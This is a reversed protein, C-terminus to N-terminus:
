EYALKKAISYLVNVMTFRIYARLYKFYDTIGPIRSNMNNTTISRLVAEGENKGLARFSTNRTPTVTATDDRSMIWWFGDSNKVFGVIKENM